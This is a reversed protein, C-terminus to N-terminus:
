LYLNGRFVIGAAFGTASAVPEFGTGQASAKLGDLRRMEFGVKGQEGVASLAHALTRETRLFVFVAAGVLLIPPGALLLLKSRKMKEGVAVLGRGCGSHGLTARM